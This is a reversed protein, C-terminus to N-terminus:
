HYECKKVRRHHVMRYKCVKTNHHPLIHMPGHVRTVTTRSHRQATAPVVAVALALGGVALTRFIKM